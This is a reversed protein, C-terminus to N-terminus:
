IFLYYMCLSIVSYFFHFNVYTAMSGPQSLILERVSLLSLNKNRLHLFDQVNSSRNATFHASGGFMIGRGQDPVSLAWHRSRVSAGFNSEGYRFILFETSDMDRM